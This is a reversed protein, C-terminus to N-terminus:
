LNNKVIDTFQTKIIDNLEVEYEDIFIADIDVDVDEIDVETHSPTWYDGEDHSISGRVSLNFFVDIQIGSMDFKMYQDGKQFYGDNEFIMDQWDELVDKETLTLSKTNFQYTTEM